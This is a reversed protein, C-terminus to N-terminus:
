ELVGWGFEDPNKSRGIGGMWEMWRIRGKGDNENILFAFRFLTGPKDGIGLNKLPIAAEYHTVDNERKVTVPVNWEGRLKEFPSIHAYVAGKGDKGSITLETFNGDLSSFGIQVSDDRWGEAPPSNMVHKDDTVRIDLKLIGGQHTMAFDCSLDKPGMWRPINPDFSMEHVKDLTDVAIRARPTQGSAVPYSVNVTLPVTLELNEAGSKITVKQQVSFAGNPTKEPVRLTLALESTEGAKLTKRVTGTEVEAAAPFPNKVSLVAEAAAGASGGVVGKQAALAVGYKFSGAPFSVYMAEDVTLSVYGYKVAAEISKGFLDVASIEGNGQLPLVERTGAIRPWLAWIERKGDISLFRYIDLGGTNALLEGRRTDSLQRILENYAILAPKPRNDSNVLGFSDDAEADMDWFDQLTFWTYFETNRSKAYVIKRVLTGAHRRITDVTYGSRDGTETNCVPLEVGAEKLWAEVMEQRERYNMLSGHAHFCAIDYLGKGKVYVDRSFNKKERPHLITLGGTTIKIEPATANRSENVVKLAALYEDLTGNYFELDPENWFEFYRVSKFPKICAFVNDMHKRFEALKTPAGRHKPKEQVYDPVGENYSFCTLIGIDENAKLYKRVGPFNTASGIDVRAGTIGFREIDFGILKKWEGHLANEADCNWIDTDQIGFWMPAHNKRGNNPRFVAIWDAYSNQIKGSTFECVAHYSGIELAPLEFELTHLGFADMAVPFNVEFSCHNRSDFLKYNFTGKLPQESASRLRYAVKGARGPEMALSALVPRISVKRQRSVGGSLAIDDILIYNAGSVGTAEFHIKYLKFPPTFEAGKKGVESRFRKWEGGNLVVPETTFRKNNTDELSFYLKCDIGRPNADFEVAEAFVEPQYIKFRQFDLQGTQAADAFDFQLKGAFGDDRSADPAAGLVLDAGFWKGPTINRVAWTRWTGVDSFDEIILRDAANASFVGCAIAAFAWIRKKM